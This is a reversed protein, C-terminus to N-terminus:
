SERDRVERPLPDGPVEEPAWERKMAWLAKTYANVPIGCVVHRFRYWSSLPRGETKGQQTHEDVYEELVPRMVKAKIEELTLNKLDDVETSKKARCLVMVAMVVHQPDVYWGTTKAALWMGHLQGVLGVAPPDGMGIDEAACILLRKWAYHPDRQYALMTWYCAAREDGRRIEKQLASVAIDMPQGLKTTRSKKEEGEIAPKKM